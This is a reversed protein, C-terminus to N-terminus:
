LKETWFEIKVLVGIVGVVSQKVLVSVNDKRPVLQAQRVMVVNVPFASVERIILAVRCVM